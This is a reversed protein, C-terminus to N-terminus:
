TMWNQQLLIEPLLVEVLLLAADVKKYKNIVTQVFSNTEEENTLNVIQVELNENPAFDNKM